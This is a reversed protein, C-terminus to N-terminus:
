LRGGGYGRLLLMVLAPRALQFRPVPIAVGGAAPIRDKVPLAATRWSNSILERDKDDFAAAMLHFEAFSRRITMSTWTKWPLDKIVDDVPLNSEVKAPPVFLTNVDIDRGFGAELHPRDVSSRGYEEILGSTILSHWRSLRGNTKSTSDMEEHERVIKNLRENIVTQLAGGWMDELFDRFMESVSKFETSRGLACAFQMLQSKLMSREAMQRSLDCGDECWALSEVALKFASLAIQQRQGDEHLLGALQGPFCSSHWENSAARQRVVGVVLSVYQQALADQVYVKPSDETLGAASDPSTVFGCRALAVPDRMTRVAEKLPNLWSGLALDAWYRQTDAAGKVHSRYHRDEACEAHTALCIMRAAHVFNLDYKTKLVFHLTNTCAKRAKKVEATAASKESPGAAKAKARGQPLAAPPDKSSGAGGPVALAAGGPTALEDCKSCPPLLDDIRQIWKKKKALHTLIFCDVGVYSDQGIAWSHEFSTWRSQAVKEGKTCVSKLMPLSDLLKQRGARSDEEPSLGMDAVIRPWFYCLVADDPDLNACLDDATEKIQCHFGGGDWPGYHVNAVIFGKDRTAGFDAEWMALELDRERRHTIDLMGEINAKCHHRLFWLARWQKQEWDMCVYLAKPVQSIDCPDPMTFWDLPVGGWLELVHAFQAVVDWTAIYENPAALKARKAPPQEGERRALLEITQRENETREQETWSSGPVSQRM